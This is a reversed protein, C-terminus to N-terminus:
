FPKDCARKVEPVQLTQEIKSQGMARLNGKNLGNIIEINHSKTLEMM